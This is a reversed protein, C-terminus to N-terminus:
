LPGYRLTDINDIYKSLLDEICLSDVLYGMIDLYNYDYKGPGTLYNSITKFCLCYKNTRFYKDEYPRRRTICSELLNMAQGRIQHDLNRTLATSEKFQIKRGFASKSEIGGPNIYYTEGPAIRRRSYYPIKSM